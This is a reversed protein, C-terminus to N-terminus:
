LDNLDKFFQQTCQDVAYLWANVISPGSGFVIPLVRSSRVEKVIDNRYIYSGDDTNIVKTIMEASVVKNASWPIIFSDSGNRENIQNFTLVAVNPYDYKKGFNAIDGKKLDKPDINNDELFEMFQTMIKQNAILHFPTNAQEIKQNIGVLITPYKKVVDINSIVVAMEPKSSTSSFSPSNSYTSLSQDLDIAFCPLSVVLILLFVM